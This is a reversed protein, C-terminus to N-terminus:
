RLPLSPIGLDALLIRVYNYRSAVAPLAEAAKAFAAAPSIGPDMRRIEEAKAKFKAICSAEIERLEEAHGM